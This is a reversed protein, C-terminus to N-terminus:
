IHEHRYCMTLAMATYRLLLFPFCVSHKTEDVKDGAADKAAEARTGVSANSDKAVALLSNAIARTSSAIRLSM